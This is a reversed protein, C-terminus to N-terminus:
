EVIITERLSIPKGNKSFGEVKIEFEGKVDSTFFSFSKPKDIFVKPMWLLQYRYDPIRQDSSIENGLYEQMFYKKRAQPRVLQIGISSAGNSVFNYDQKFTEISIVGDYVEKGFVYRGRGVSIKEIQRANYDMLNEHNLVQLGDMLVLPKKDSEAYPPNVRVKFTRKDASERKVWLNELIEVVTERLTPFRTYDDLIYELSNELFFPTEASVTQVTDPKVSFFANEIQNHFSRELIYPEMEETLEFSYFDEEKLIPRQSDLIELKYAENEDGLAQVVATEGEYENQISFHFTGDSNTHATKFHSNYGPISLSVGVAKVPKLTLKDLIRGTLLEGRIEPLYLYQNQDFSGKAGDKRNTMKLSTSSVPPPSSLSPTKRVSISINYELIEPSKPVLTCVVKERVGFKSSSLQLALKSNPNSVSNNKPLAPKEVKSSGLVLSDTNKKLFVKQDNTYPNIVTINQRFFERNDFNQMWQTYAILKYNGSAVNTPVFFDSYSRGNNLRVKQQFVRKGDEGILDVYAIKSIRSPNLTEEDLCYLSYLLYEGVFVTTSNVHVYVKEKPFLEKKTAGGQGHAQFIMLCLFGLLGLFFQIHKIYKRKVSMM